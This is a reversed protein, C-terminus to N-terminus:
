PVCLAGDAVQTQTAPMLWQAIRVFPQMMKLRREVIHDSGRLITTSVVFVLCAAIAMVSRALRRRAARLGVPCDSTLLTGDARQYVHVCLSGEKEQILNAIEDNNLGVLNYVNKECRDCYRVRDDGRLNAWGVDCPSAIRANQLIPLPQTTM